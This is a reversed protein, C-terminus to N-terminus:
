HATSFKALNAAVRARLKDTRYKLECYTSISEIYVVYRVLWVIKLAFQRTFRRILM